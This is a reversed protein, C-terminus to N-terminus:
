FLLDLRLKLHYLPKIYASPDQQIILYLHTIWWPSSNQRFGSATQPAILSFSVLLLFCKRACICDFCDVIRGSCHLWLLIILSVILVFKPTTVTIDGIASVCFGSVQAFLRINLFNIYFSLSPLLEQYCKNAKLRVVLRCRRKIWLTQVTIIGDMWLHLDDRTVWMGGARSRVGHDRCTAKTYDVWDTSNLWNFVEERNRRFCLKKPVDFIQLTLVHRIVHSRGNVSLM